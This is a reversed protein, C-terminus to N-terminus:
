DEPPRVRPIEKTAIVSWVKRQAEQVTAIRKSAANGQLKKPKQMPPIAEDLDYIVMPTPSPASSSIDDAGQLAHRPDLPLGGNADPGLEEGKRKKGTGKRKGGEVDALGKRSRGKASRKFGSPTPARSAEDVVSRELDDTIDEMDELKRKKSAHKTRIPVDFDSEDPSGPHNRRKNINKSKTGLLSEELAQAADENALDYHHSRSFDEDGSQIASDDEFSLSRRAISSLKPRIPPPPSPFSLIRTMYKHVRERAVTGTREQCLNDCLCIYATAPHM